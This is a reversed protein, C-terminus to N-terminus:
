PMDPDRIGIIDLSDDSTKDRIKEFLDCCSRFDETLYAESLKSTWILEPASDLLYGNYVAYYLVSRHPGRHLIVTYYMNEAGKKMQSIEKLM